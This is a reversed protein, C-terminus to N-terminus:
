LLTCGESQEELNKDLKTVSQVFDALEKGNGANILFPHQLLEIAPPRKKPDMIVCLALFEHMEKSWIRKDQLPPVGKTSILFLAKTTPEEMYPPDWEAMEMLMIGLSWVDVGPGYEEHNIVEPAMWYPTGCYTARRNNKATLQTANGFDALKVEGKSGLMINDSKIDRHMRHNTHIYSLGKLCEMIVFAILKEPMMKKHQKMIFLLNALDKSQMYEMAVWLESEVLYAGKFAVINPHPSSNRQIWIESIVYKLNGNTVLMKKLAVQENTQSNTARYVEGYARFFVNLVRTKSCFLWGKGL